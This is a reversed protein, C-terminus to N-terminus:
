SDLDFETVEDTMINCYGERTIVYSENCTFGLLKAIRGVHFGVAKDDDSGFLAGNPHNHFLRFSHCHSLLMYIGIEREHFQSHTWNGKSILYISGLYDMADYGAIFFYEADFLHLGYSNMLLTMTNFAGNISHESLSKVDVLDWKDNNFSIEKQYIM